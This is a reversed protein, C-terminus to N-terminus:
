DMAMFEVSLKVGISLAFLLCSEKTPMADENQAYAVGCVVIVLWGIWQQM